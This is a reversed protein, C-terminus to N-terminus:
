HRGHVDLKTALDILTCYALKQVGSKANVIEMNRLEM